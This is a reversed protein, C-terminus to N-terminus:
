NQVMTSLAREGKEEDEQFEMIIVEDAAVELPYDVGEIDLLPPLCSPPKASSGPM